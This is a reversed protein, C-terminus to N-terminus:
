ATRSMAIRRGNVLYLVIGDLRSPATATTGDNEFKITFYARKFTQKGSVKVVQPNPNSTPLGGVIAPVAAGFPLWAIENDQAEQWTYNDLDNWTMQPNNIVDIPSISAEVWNVAVLLLEWGFM